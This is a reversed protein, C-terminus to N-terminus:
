TRTDTEFKEQLEFYLEKLADDIIYEKLIPVVDDSFDLNELCDVLCDLTQDKTFKSVDPVQM